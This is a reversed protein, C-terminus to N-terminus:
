KRFPINSVRADVHELNHYHLLDLVAAKRTETHTGPGIIVERLCEPPFPIVLYAIPGMSSPRFQVSVKPEKLEYLPMQILIRWEREEAFGPHKVRALRPLLQESAHWEVMGPHGSRHSAVELEQAFYEAPNPIGYQVPITEGINLAKLQETDFGLAYGQDTGYGRWQSLLDGDECFCVIFMRFNELSPGAQFYGGGDELPALGLKQVEAFYIDRAYSLEAGDNLFQCDSAWLERRTVVGIIGPITTYHYIIASSTM